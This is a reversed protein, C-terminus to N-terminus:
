PKCGFPVVEAGEDWTVGCRVCVVLAGQKPRMIDVVEHPTINPVQRTPLEYASGPVNREAVYIYPRIVQRVGHLVDPLWM